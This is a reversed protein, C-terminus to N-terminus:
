AAPPPQYTIQWLRQLWWITVATIYIGGLAGTSDISTILSAITGLPLAIILRYRLPQALALAAAVGVAFGGARQIQDTTVTNGWVHWFTSNVAIMGLAATITSPVPFRLWAHWGVAPRRKWGAIAAAAFAVVAATPLLHPVTWKIFATTPAVFVEAAFAGALAAIVVGSVTAALLGAGMRVGDAGRPRSLGAFVPLISSFWIAASLCTVLALVAAMALEGWNVKLVFDGPGFGRVGPGYHLYRYVADTQGGARWKTALFEFYLGASAFGPVAVAFTRRLLPLAPGLGTGPPATDVRRGHAGAAGRVAALGPDDTEVPPGGVAAAVAYATLPLGATGGTVVVATLDPLTLEAATVADPVLGAARALVPRALTHLDDATVVRPPDPAPLTMSVTPHSSLLEKAARVAALVGPAPEGKDGPVAGTWHQALLIDVRSGGADDDHVTSLVEFGTPARRLVSAEAGGGVDCVALYVGVPLTNGTAAVHQAVAIPARVLIVEGLGARHAAQRLWTTRRPGWWAPVVLWIDEAPEGAVTTAEEAVRRLTAAVLDVAPVEAGSLVVREGPKFRLPNQEFGDPDTAAAQWAPDGGHDDRGRRCAGCQVAM